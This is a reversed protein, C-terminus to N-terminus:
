SQNVFSETQLIYLKWKRNAGKSSIKNYLVELWRVKDPISINSKPPVNAKVCGHFCFMVLLYNFVLVM